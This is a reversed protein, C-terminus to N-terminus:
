GVQQKTPHKCLFRGDRRAFIRRRWAWLHTLAKGFGLGEYNREFFVTGNKVGCFQHFLQFLPVHQFGCKPQPDPQDMGIRKYQVPLSAVHHLVQQIDTFATTFFPKPIDIDFGGQRDGEQMFVPSLNFFAQFVHLLYFGNYFLVLHIGQVREIGNSHGGVVPNKGM